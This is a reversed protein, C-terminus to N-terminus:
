TPMSGPTPISALLTVWVMITTCKMLLEENNFEMCAKTGQLRACVFDFITDKIKDYHVVRTKMDGIRAHEEEYEVFKPLTTNDHKREVM